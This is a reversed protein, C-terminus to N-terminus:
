QIRVPKATVFEIGVRTRDVLGRATSTQHSRNVFAETRLWRTIQYGFTGQTWLSHLTFDVGFLDVPEIIGYAVNGGAILRGGAFPVHASASVRQNANLGGFGISPVFSREYNGSVSVAGALHDLGVHYAPGWREIPAPVVTTNLTSASALPTTDSKLYSAGAGGRVTTHEAVQWALEGTLNQVNFVEQDDGVVSHRYSWSGGLSVHQSISYMTSVSPSYSHGNRLYRLFQDPDDPTERDFRISQASIGGQIETRPSTKLTFGGSAELHDSGIGIFPLVGAESALRDTTPVRSYSAQGRLNLRPGTQQRIELRGKQEYRNLESFQRYAELAGSYGINFHTHRGNFDLEGRPNVLGVVESRIPENVARLTVNSDHLAGLVMSPTFVWGPTLREPAWPAPQASVVRASLAAIVTLLLVSKRM